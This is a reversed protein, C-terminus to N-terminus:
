SSFEKCLYKRSIANKQFACYTHVWVSCLECDVWFVTDGVMGLPEKFSCLERIVGDDDDNSLDDRFRAPLIGHQQPRCSETSPGPQTCHDDDESEQDASGPESYSRQKEVESSESDSEMPVSPTELCEKKERKREGEGSVAEEEQEGDGEKKSSTKRVKTRKM